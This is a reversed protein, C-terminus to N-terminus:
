ITTTHFTSMNGLHSEQHTIVCNNTSILNMPMGAEPSFIRLFRLRDSLAVKQLKVKNIVSRTHEERLSKHILGSTLIYQERPGNM